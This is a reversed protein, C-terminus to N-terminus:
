DVEEMKSEGKDERDEVNEVIEEEKEEEVDDVDDTSIGLEIIRHIKQAYEVPNELTFGSTILSTSYLM